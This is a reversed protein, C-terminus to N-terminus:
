TYEAARQELTKRNTNANGHIEFTFSVARKKKQMRFKEITELNLKSKYTKANM